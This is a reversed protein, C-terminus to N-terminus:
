LELLGKPPNIVIFKKEMNIQPVIEKVFPILVKKKNEYLEVVVLNNKESIFDCVEGVTKTKKNEFIQVKLNILESIHFEGKKLDPIDTSTVLIKHKKFKEAHNRNNIGKFTVIFIDKGPKQYGSVLTFSIPEESDKQFWREGPKTFRETFDSLSKVILKGNLGHPSTVIGVTLLEKKELM